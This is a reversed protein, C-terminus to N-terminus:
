KNKKNLEKTLDYTNNLYEEIITEEESQKFEEATSNEIPKEIFQRIAFFLPEKKAVEYYSNDASICKNITMAARDKQNTMMYIKTLEYYAKAEKEKYASNVFYTIASDYDRYLLSIQGLRYYALYNQLNLEVAKKFSGVASSFDNVRTYAIGLNYYITDDDTNYKTTNSYVDIADKFKEDKLLLEGLLKAAEKHEPKHKLLTRLMQMSEDKRGLDNLLVSIKYYSGYDKKRLDLAKVYEDIAKRMGGESEYIKALMKHGLYSSKYKDVLKVLVDKAKKDNGMLKYINAFALSMLESININKLELIMIIIPIIICFLYVIVYFFTATLLNFIIQVFNIIIGITQIGLIALYNTDNRKILKFLFFYIYLVFAILTILIKGIM